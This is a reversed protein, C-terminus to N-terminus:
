LRTVHVYWIPLSLVVKSVYKLTPSREPSASLYMSSQTVSVVQASSPKWLVVFRSPQVPMMAVMVNRWSSDHPAVISSSLRIVPSVPSIPVISTTLPAVFVAVGNAFASLWANSSPKMLPTESFTFIVM